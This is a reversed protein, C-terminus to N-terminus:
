VKIKRGRWSVTRLVKTLFLSWSFLVLFFLVHLPYLALLFLKFNGLRRAQFIFVLAYILSALGAIIIWLLSSSLVALMILTITSFSGSIWILILSFVFPHTSQYATGFSKTWGEFLQRFGEPYMRLSIIHQGVYNKVQYGHQQFLEGLALDDMIAESIAKHGGIAFYEEKNCIICPGFAGASTFKERWPTFVNMGAVVIINFIASFSEYINKVRHYPQFSLIGSGSLEAYSAIIQRLGGPSGLKTDADLFLLWKGRAQLAGDWCAASKGVWDNETESTIVRAGTLSAIEATKDDSHDDMVIIELPKIDQAKLSALLEPIRFEENRAPIIISLQNALAASNKKDKVEKLPPAVQWIMLIGCIIALATLVLNISLLM